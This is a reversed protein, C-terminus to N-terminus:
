PNMRNRLLQVKVQHLPMKTSSGLTRIKPHHSKHTTCPDNSVKNTDKDDASMGVTEDGKKPSSSEDM